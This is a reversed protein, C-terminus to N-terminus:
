TQGRELRAIAGWTRGATIGWDLGEVQKRARVRLSELRERDALVAELTSALEEPRGPDFYEVAEGAFEPMPPRSSCTVACGCAMAELLINPCNETESAFVVVSAARYIRPLVAPPRPGAMVVRSDLGLRRIEDRVRTGYAPDEGGVLVLRGIGPVRRHLHGYAQIV